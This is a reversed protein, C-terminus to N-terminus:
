AMVAASVPATCDPDDNEAVNCAAIWVLRLWNAEDDALDTEDWAGYEALEDRITDPTPRNPFNDAEMLARVKPAHRAVDSDCAGSHSCDMACAGSIRLDFRTFSAWYLASPDLKTKM